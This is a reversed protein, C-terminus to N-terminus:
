KILSLLALIVALITLRLVTRQLLMNSRAVAANLYDRFYDSIAQDRLDLEQSARAVAEGSRRLQRFLSDVMGRRYPSASFIETTWAWGDDQRAANAAFDASAAKYEAALARASDTAGIGELRAAMHRAYAEAAKADSLWQISAARNAPMGLLNAVYAAPSQTLLPHDDISEQKTSLRHILVVTAAFTLLSEPISPENGTSLPGQRIAILDYEDGLIGAGHLIFLDHFRQPIAVTDTQGLAVRLRRIIREQEDRPAGLGLLDQHPELYLISVFHRDSPLDTSHDFLTTFIANRWDQFRQGRHNALAAVDLNQVPVLAYKATAAGLHWQCLATTVEAFALPPASAPIICHRGAGALTGDRWYRNVFTHATGRPSRMAPSGDSLRAPIPHLLLYANNLQM